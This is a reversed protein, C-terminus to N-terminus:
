MSMHEPLVYSIDDWPHRYLGQKLRKQDLYHGIFGMSRGLVFIGNLAGIEVFEDAEDRTFGGCMRLLDVFAVGIFGDVNLILNPKKSTTIKEVDLAYDLMPTAPFHGKVFDKLIQVRMDPNNISKVRHGIGMILKGDKKMKNVFEMPLMGSDFAKSFQKAAADLAGGFRDGITLLGSTLSSILDKGARACVITNHAGSVAPGHDATVMLCMEIFQCAYRPLRRQFWLLGLVGGLGMEEKFVETIPMGAYILEQGREDCISTMFSAPKRILGLERAWSYDMPVTPPPVEQAPVITGNAVLEDYVTRIVDGLEDFSKPVFAGADRLAQNKAVATEFAQNACAGAHGFQVESSFMTACTGICWCVVPKTIRGEKIGQCIKYEETGGIEGLMVIMKVGPTDQYRLVHDMFTSGPYRDGGIAVGEYVGDTAHSVINNLENSMGGSRSVYAVSGPRYLNSALINDLMGGTNGIKFCGPKIGGVTAPGIITIGNEDARKILKRTQAEPIGEAIIAITHIQSYQMTEMTSDFASRLSAFSILVDVEPHKKMADAMNKYVPILIEKHGWYFKQKHDGTFPYVMAAVSPEDRSCVYDFDLMGQVARTQMGWMIAKTNRSFLMTAKAYCDGTFEEKVPWLWPCYSAAAPVGAKPKKASTADNAARPESFSATRTSAPTAANTSSNLLFNATHAAVPPQNPIPQHGLAMGVIATMHTETGFVYIPIGTTKGVEGMVRLGEQYNPGGRRVFITVGNEKLPGQYDKIARVIGKFTAAVNTFNAISGGIILVKGEHHKERTMLSLITKAYDYTQQESPAGSYEGYNALEDVGGLDCITDSYVVSAGGGAVMTWIRGLPNLITLKLSAGSKADLDAIYAEEPYAERGFPPPFEVDGWKAKCIYDATADIKAAMDLVFVGDQNVVLPNIELYTFYLDEYLNFLGVVFSVLVEKKDDPVHMFLQEKVSDESLKDDVGVLLRQAKADVDGVDVGGEHHFLVHDGERTAYICIYFEEEQTHAVFPEILFNKLIGKAKAVTTERMLRPKLWEQVGVLDLDVGVLGLKGRCKILQDPKVVLRETLLWPHDQTLRDWDTESTVNAYRFRNQVAASTCIHKYLFEKGTQESIAKASM